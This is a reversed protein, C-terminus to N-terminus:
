DGEWRRAYLKGKVVIFKEKDGAFDEAESWSKVIPVPYKDNVQVYKKSIPVRKIKETASTM